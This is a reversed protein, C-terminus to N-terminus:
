STPVHTSTMLSHQDVEEGGVDVQPYKNHSLGMSQCVGSATLLCLSGCCDSLQECCLALPLFHVQLSTSMTRDMLLVADHAVEERLGFVQGIRLMNTALEGRRQLYGFGMNQVWRATVM